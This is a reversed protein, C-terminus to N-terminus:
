HQGAAPLLPVAPCGGRTSNVAAVHMRQEQGAAEGRWRASLPVRRWAWGGVWGGVWCAARVQNNFIAVVYGQDTLQRLKAPVGAFAYQWDTASGVFPLGM